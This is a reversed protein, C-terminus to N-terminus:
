KILNDTMKYMYGVQQCQKMVEELIQKECDLLILNSESMYIEQYFIIHNITSLKWSMVKLVDRYGNQNKVLQKVVLRFKDMPGIQGTKELIRKITM